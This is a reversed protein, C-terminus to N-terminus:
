SIINTGMHIAIIKEAKCARGGRQMERIASESVSSNVDALRRTLGVCWRSKRLWSYKIIKFVSARIDVKPTQYGTESCITGKNKIDTETISM